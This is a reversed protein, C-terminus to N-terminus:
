KITDLGGETRNDYFGDRNPMRVRPLTKANLTMDDPVIGNRALIFATM